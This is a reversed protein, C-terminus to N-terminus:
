AQAFGDPLKWLPEKGEPSGDDTTSVEEVPVAVRGDEDPGATEMRAAPEDTANEPSPLPMEEATRPISQAM